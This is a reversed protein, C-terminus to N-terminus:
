GGRGGYHKERARPYYTETRHHVELLSVPGPGNHKLNESKPRWRNGSRRGRWALAGYRPAPIFTYARPQTQSPTRRTPGPAAGPGARVLSPGPRRRASARADWDVASVKLWAVRVLWSVLHPDSWAVPPNSAFWSLGEESVLKFVIYGVGYASM